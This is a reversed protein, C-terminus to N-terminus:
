SVTMKVLATSAIIAETQRETQRGTVTRYWTLNVWAVMTRDERDECTM